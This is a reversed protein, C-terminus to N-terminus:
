VHWPLVKLDQLGVHAKATHLITQEVVNNHIYMYMNWLLTSQVTYIAIKCLVLPSTRISCVLLPQCAYGRKLTKVFVADM